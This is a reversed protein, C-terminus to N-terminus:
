LKKLQEYLQQQFNEATQCRAIRDGEEANPCVMGRKTEHIFCPQHPCDSKIDFSLTHRYYKTRSEVTMAAMATLCPKCVGERFHTASSDTTVVMGADYLNLLYDHISCKPIIRINKGNIYTRDDDTLDQEHVYIPRNPWREKVPTYFDELRSSRMQCSSRHCILVSNKALRQQSDDIRNQKLLPRRFDVPAEDMGIRRFFGDYWNKEHSEIAAFELNLRRLYKYRTLRNEQTWDTVIPKYFGRVDVSHTFWRYAPAFREETFVRILYNHLYAPIVSFALVDGIGGGIHTFISTAREPYQYRQFLSDLIYLSIAKDAVLQETSKRDISALPLVAACRAPYVQTFGNAQLNCQKRFYAVPLFRDKVQDSLKRTPREM